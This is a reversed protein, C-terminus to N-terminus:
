GMILRFYKEEIVDLEAEEGSDLHKLERVKYSGPKNATAQEYDVHEKYLVMEVEDREEYYYPVYFSEVKSGKPLFGKVMSAQEVLPKVVNRFVISTDSPISKLWEMWLRIGVSNIMKVDNLDIILIEVVFEPMPPLKVHEDIMGEFLFTYKNGDKATKYKFNSM